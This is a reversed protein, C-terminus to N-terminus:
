RARNKDTLMVVATMAAKSAAHELPELPVDLEEGAVLVGMM